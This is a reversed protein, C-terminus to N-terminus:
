LMFVVHAFKLNLVCSFGFGWVLWVLVWWKCGFGEHSSSQIRLVANDGGLLLLTGGLLHVSEVPWMHLAEALGRWAPSSVISVTDDCFWYKSLILNMTMPMVMLTM